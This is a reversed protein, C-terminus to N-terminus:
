IRIHSLHSPKPINNIAGPKVLATKPTTQKAVTEIKPANEGLKSEQDSSGCSCGKFLPSLFCLVTLALGVVIGGDGSPRGAASFRAM